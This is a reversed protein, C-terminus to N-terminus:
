RRQLEAFYAVSPRYRFLLWAAGASFIAANIVARWAVVSPVLGAAACAFGVIAILPWVCMLPIRAWDRHRRLAFSTLAMLIAITTMLPAAIRLWLERPVRVGGMWPDGGVGAAVAAVGAVAGVAYIAAFWM